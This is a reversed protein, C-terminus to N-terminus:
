MYGVLSKGHKILVPHEWGSKHVMNKQICDSSQQEKGHDAPTRLLPALAVYSCNFLWPQNTVCTRSRVM